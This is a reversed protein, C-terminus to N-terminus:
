RGLHRWSQGRQGLWSAGLLASVCVVACVLVLQQAQVRDGAQVAEYLAISLTQTHGPISGAVMLTAGFEGLARAFGLLLGALIGPWALPLSVRWFVAATTLGLTRATQELPQPVQEFATRASKFVLPFVVVSAAIVAGPVSFVLRIGWTQWLWQGLLSNQGLLVLLYYGLVTPPLVLPLSLLSDLGERLWDSAGGRHGSGTPRSLAWGTAVALVANILTAWLAVQLSLLLAPWIATM